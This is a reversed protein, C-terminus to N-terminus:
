PASVLLARLEEPPLPRSFLYGQIEDCGSVRLYDMQEQTEVGEAVVKLKLSHALAIVANVIARDDQDTTLDRIFSKDIKLKRIPLKKLYSLSSYGTGFDDISLRVGMGTLQVMTPITLDIDGMATSETIEIDLYEPKLGTERLVCAVIEILNPQQFQRASLNVTIRLPPYGTEQWAKNQECATRLVWEDMPIIFGTEEALPIFQMPDLLGLEPHQWRVLAEVCVIRRTAIDVQPQYHVVLEGRDLTRRLSNELIIRELTRINIAPSYFHYTNGGQEKAQYLAIDANKLLTEEYEGDHPYISIGISTTVHLDHGEVRYPAAFQSLIKQAAKAADEAHLLHPLLIIFEDGGIRAITDYERMCGTLRLSADKLLQDGATHGMTDNITKFRDLDLFMVALLSSNRRAQHLAIKLRDMLLTKNPLDTLLDHYAQYRIREELDKRETVDEIMAQKSVTGDSHFLPTNVVYYWRGDKPNHVEWRVTEGKFVKANVCWPCLTDRDHLARYCLEGVANRGTRRILKENMFELRYEQSCIYIFGEFSEVVARYSVESKQLVEERKRRKEEVGIAAAIFDLFLKEETGPLIDYPFFVCLSGVPVGDLFVPKGIYTESSCLRVYPDSLSYPTRGLHRLLVIQDDGSKLVDHCIHGEPRDESPFGPPTNWKGWSLLRDQHLRNYFAAAGELLKGCLVTLRNINMLPDAGLDLLCANIQALRKEM